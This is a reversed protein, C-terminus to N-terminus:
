HFGQLRPRLPMGTLLGLIPQSLHFTGESPAATVRLVMHLETLQNCLVGEFRPDSSQFATAQLTHPGPSAQTHLQHRSCSSVQQPHYRYSTPDTGARHSSVCYCQLLLLFPAPTPASKTETM